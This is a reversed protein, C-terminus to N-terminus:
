WQAVAGTPMCTAFTSTWPVFGVSAMGAAMGVLNQEAIGMQFFRDPHAAAFADAKTSSGLDGDLVVIRQDQAAQRILTQAWVERM